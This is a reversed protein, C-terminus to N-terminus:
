LSVSIRHTDLHLKIKPAGLDGSLPYGARQAYTGWYGLFSGSLVFHRPVSEVTKTIVNPRYRDMKTADLSHVHGMIYLEAEVIRDLEICAKIKTHPYRAGSRGHTTYATYVEKREGDTIEFAHIMGDQFYPVGLLKAMLKALDFGTKKHVRLEHNGRLLGLIKDQKVLPEFKEVIEYVQSDLFKTQDFLGPSDVISSEVLDGMLIIKIDPTIKCWDLVFDLFGEDCDENGWHIDGVPVLRMFDWSPDIVIKVYNLLPVRKVAKYDRTQKFEEFREQYEEQKIRKRERRYVDESVGLYEAQKNRTDFKLEAKTIQELTLRIAKRPM